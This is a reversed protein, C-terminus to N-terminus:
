VSPDDRPIQVSMYKKAESFGLGRYLALAKENRSLVKLDIRCAGNEAAYERFARILERAIGRRRYEEEVFLADLAAVPRLFFHPIEYVFGYVYGVIKGADEAVFAANTAQALQQAYNGEVVYGGNLNPDLLSEDHILKTLLADLQPADEPKAKRVNM